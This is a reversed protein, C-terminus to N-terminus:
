SGDRLKSPAVLIALLAWVLLSGFRLNLASMAARAALAGRSCRDTHLCSLIVHGRSLGWPM